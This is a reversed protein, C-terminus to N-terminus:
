KKIPNMKTVVVTCYITKGNVRASVTTTGPLRGVIHGRADITAVRNNATYWRITGSSGFVDLDFSDYQEITVRDANMAVVHITCADEVTGYSTIAIIQAEGASHTTVNGYQDVTAINTDTSYWSLSETTNYPFVRATLQRSQHPFMTIDSSNISVRTAKVLSKVNIFAQGYVETGDTSTATVKTRGETVAYVTGNFDVIAINEDESKWEVDKYTANGPDITAYLQGTENEYLTLTKPNISIHRVPNIVEVDIFDYVQSGDTATATIRATGVGVAKIVGKPTVTIVNLDSSTWSVTKDSATPQSITVSLPIEDGINMRGPNGTIEVGEVYEHVTVECSAILGRDNTTCTIIAVGGAIAKVVGNEDVTAVSTDSSTWRVTKDDADDPKITPILQFTEGKELKYSSYNLSVSEISQTVTLICDASVGTDLSTATIVCEGAEICDVRGYENVTAITPDSSTWVVDKKTANEPLVKAYLYFVSGKRTTKETESLQLAEVPQYVVVICNAKYDGDDTKVTIIANGSAVATVVGNEDVTAVSENSSYWTVAKNYANDPIVTAHLQQTDGIKLEIESEALEVGTVEERVEVTCIATINNITLSVIATGSGTFTVLGNSDVTCVSPDTSIWSMPFGETSAGAPGVSYIMQYTAPDKGPATSGPKFVGVGDCADHYKSGDAMTQCSVIIKSDELYVESINTTVYVTVYSYTGNESMAVIQTSGSVNGATIKATRDSLVEITAISSDLTYWSVTGYDLEVGNSFLHATVLATDGEILSVESPDVTMSTVGDNVYVTCTATRITGDSIGAGNEKLTFTLVATGTANASIEYDGWEGGSKHAATAVSSNSSTVTIEYYDQYSPDALIATIDAKTGKEMTVVSKNLTFANYVSVTVTDTYVNNYADTYTATVVATGASKAEVHGTAQDLTIVGTGSEIIWSVSSQQAATTNTELDLTDGVGMVVDGNKIELPVVIDISDGYREDYTTEDPIPLNQGDADRNLMLYVKATGVSNATMNGKEVTNDISVISPDSTNFNVFSNDLVNTELVHSTGQSLKYVGSMYYGNAQAQNRDVIARIYVDYDHSYTGISATAKTYGAHFNSILGGGSQYTISAVDTNEINWTPTVIGSLGPISLVATTYVSANIPNAQNATIIFDVDLNFSSSYSNVGDNWEATITVNGPSVLTLTAYAFHTAPDSTTNTITCINTNGSTWRIRAPDLDQTGDNAVVRINFTDGVIHKNITGSIATGVHYASGDHYTGEQNYSFTLSEGAAAVIIFSSIVGVAIAGVIACQKWKKKLLKKILKIFIRM